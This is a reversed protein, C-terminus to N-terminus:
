SDKSIFSGPSEPIGFEKMTDKIDVGDGFTVFVYDLGRNIGQERSAETFVEVMVKVGNREHLYRTSLVAVSWGSDKKYPHRDMMAKSTAPDVSITYIM